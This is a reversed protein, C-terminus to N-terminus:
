GCSLVSYQCPHPVNAKRVWNRRCTAFACNGSCCSQGRVLYRRKTKCVSNITSSSNQGLSCHERVYHQPRHLLPSRSDPDIYVRLHQRTRNRNQDHIPERKHFHISLWPSHM